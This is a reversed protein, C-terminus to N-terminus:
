MNERKDSCKNELLTSIVRVAKLRGPPLKLQLDEMTKSMELIEESRGLDIEMIKMEELLQEWIQGKWNPVIIV